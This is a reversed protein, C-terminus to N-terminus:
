AVSGSHLGSRQQQTELCSQFFLGLQQPSGSKQMVAGPKQVVSRRFIMGPEGGQFRFGNQFFFAGPIGTFDFFDDLDDGTMGSFRPNAFIEAFNQFIRIQCRAEAASVPILFIREM